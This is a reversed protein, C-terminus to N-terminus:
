LVDMEVLQVINFHFKVIATLVQIAEMVLSQSTVLFCFNIM